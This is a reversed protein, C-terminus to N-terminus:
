DSSGSEPLVLRIVPNNLYLTRTFTSEEIAYHLYSNNRLPVIAYIAALLLCALLFGELIGLVSGLLRNFFGLIPLSAFLHLIKELLMLVLKGGILVLIFSILNLLLHTLFEAAGMSASGGIVERLFSPVMQMEQESAPIGGGILDFLTNYLPTTRLYDALVPYLIWALLLAAFFSFLRFCMKVAGSRWGSFAFLCFLALLIVDTWSFLLTDPM